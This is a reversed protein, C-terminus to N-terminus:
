DLFASSTSWQEADGSVGAKATMDVFRGRDNRLLYNPGVTSIFLDVWGDGGGTGSTQCAVSILGLLIVILRKM